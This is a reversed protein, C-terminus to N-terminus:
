ATVPQKDGSEMQRFLDVYYPMCETMAKETTFLPKYGLDRGAKAVSFYNNLYLREVALPEILPQP